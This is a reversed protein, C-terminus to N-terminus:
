DGENWPGAHGTEEAKTLAQEPTYRRPEQVNGVAYYYAQTIKIDNGNSQDSVEVYLMKNNEDLTGDRKTHPVTMWREQEVWAHWHHRGTEPHEVLGHVLYWAAPSSDSLHRLATNFAVVFCDGEGEATEIQFLPNRPRNHDTM